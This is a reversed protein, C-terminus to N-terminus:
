GNIKNNDNRSGKIQKNIMRKLDNKITVPDTEAHLGRAMVRIPRNQKDSFTYWEIKRESFLNLLRRYEVYDIFNIKFQEPHPQNTVKLKTNTPRIAQELDHYKIGIVYIPPPAQERMRRNQRQQDAQKTTGSLIQPSTKPTNSAKRKKSARKVLIYETEKNVDRKERADSDFEAEDTSYSLDDKYGAQNLRSQLLSIPAELRAIRQEAAKWQNYLILENATKLQSQQIDHGHGSSDVPHEQTNTNLVRLLQGEGSDM